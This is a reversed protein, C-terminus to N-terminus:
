IEEELLVTPCERDAVIVRACVQRREFEEQVASMVKEPTNNEKSLHGLLLHKTGTYALVAALLAGDANSLHGRTGSVRAKLYPPYPGTELMTADYNCEILAAHCGTLTAVVSKALMGMDTAIGLKRDKVSVTYGVSGMSDHPTPFSEVLFPGIETKCSKEYLLTGSPLSDLATACASPMYIPIHHKKSLVPLASIHDSHEHTVFVARVNEIKGGLKELSKEAYHASRGADILLADEGFSIYVANGSSGSYLTAFTLKSM